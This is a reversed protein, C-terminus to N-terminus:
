LSRLLILLVLTPSPNTCSHARSRRTLSLRFAKHEHCYCPRTVEAYQLSTAYDVSRLAEELADGKNEQQLIHHAAILAGLQVAYPRLRVRQLEECNLYQPNRQPHAWVGM